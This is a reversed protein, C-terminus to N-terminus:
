NSSVQMDMLIVDFFASKECYATACEEGNVTHYVEHGAKEMRKKIIKSNVPDDEAVLVQLHDATQQRPEEKQRSPIDFLVRSATQPHAETEPTEQFEDPMRIAKLLTKNDVVFESGAPGAASSRLHEPTSEANYSKSRTLKGARTGGLIKM